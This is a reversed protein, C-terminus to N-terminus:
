ILGMKNKYDISKQINIRAKNQRKRDRLKGIIDPHKKDMETYLLALGDRCLKLKVLNRSEYEHVHQFVELTFNNILKKIPETIIQENQVITFRQSLMSHNRVLLRRNLEPLETRIKNKPNFLKSMKQNPSHKITINRRFGV